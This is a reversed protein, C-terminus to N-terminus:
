GVLTALDVNAGCIVLGVREDVAPVYAGSQLAALVTATSPEVPLRLAEWLARQAERVAADSVLLADEVYAEAVAFAIEGVRRAGLADATIGSVDVDVPGGAARAASLAPTREGEVSIVQADGAYWAAIGGILGGGGVAVLVTDLEPRQAQLERGCTGQGAVVEPQDFAHALLAGTRTAHERSAVLADDYVAGAVIVDAGLADLRARKASGTVEPVFITAAHGLCRAAHAIALGFNGGSAAVVGAAPVERSLLLNFAGRPKFTGTVQLQELKLALRGPLDFTGPPLDIVPTRRVHLAIRAAAAEIESRTPITTM